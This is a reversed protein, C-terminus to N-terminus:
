INKQELLEVYKEAHNKEIFLALFYEKGIEDSEVVKYAPISYNNPSHTKIIEFSNM